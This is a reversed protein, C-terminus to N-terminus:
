CAPVGGIYHIQFRSRGQLGTIVLPIGADALVINEVYDGAALELEISGTAVTGGITAAELSYPSAVPPSIIGNKLLNSLRSGLGSGLIWWNNITVRYLGAYPATLRTPLSADWFKDTDFHIRDWPIITATADPIPFDTILHV